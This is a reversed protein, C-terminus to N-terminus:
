ADVWKGDRIFGHCGDKCLVSPSISLPEEQDVTWWQLNGFMGRYIEGRDLGCVGETGHRCKVIIHIRPCDPIDRYRENNAPITRDPAWDAFRFSFGSGLDFPGPGVYFPFQIVNEV